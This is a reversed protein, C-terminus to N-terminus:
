PPAGTLAKLSTVGAAIDRAKAAWAAERPPSWLEFRDRVGVFVAEDNLEFSARLAEPLTIRGTSDFNLFQAEGFYVRELAARKPDMPDLADLVAARKDLYAASAGELCGLHQSPFLYVGEAGEGLAARLAAPVSVRGKADIGNRYRGTFFM